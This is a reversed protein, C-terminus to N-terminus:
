VGEKALNVKFGRGGAPAGPLAPANGDRLSHFAPSMIEVGAGAFKDQINAHLASYAAAMGQAKDTYANLEYSVHYDNLAKQLVFPAPEALIGPVGEAAATLLQHVKPWPVDYGITVTTNLIIGGEECLASYNVIHSSLILANPLTVIINKITRIRTVLLTKELVDGTTEGIKVRDGAKFPRMYTLMVGAVANAIASSSGLSFLVGLFVSVGKFAPSSSGPLYPFVVVLTFAWVIFRLIQFTPRAWDPYFGSINIHGAHVEEAMAKLLSLLYHVVAVTVAVFIMDPIYGLFAKFLSALPHLIYGFLIPSLGRTWPFFSFLIPIYFYILLLTAAARTTKLLLTMLRTIRGANVLEFQQIRISRINTRAWADLRTLAAAYAAGILRLALTFLAASLLALVGGLMLSKADYDSRHAALAGRLLEANSAALERRSTGAYKADKDSVSMLVAGRSVIDSFGERERVEITEPSALPDAALKRLKEAILSAREQASLTVPLERVRLVKKDNFVVPATEPAASAKEQAPAPCAAAAWILASLIFTNKNM